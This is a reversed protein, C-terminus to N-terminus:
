TSDSAKLKDQHSPFITLILFSVALALGFLLLSGTLTNLAELDMILAIALFFIVTGGILKLAQERKQHSKTKSLAFIISFFAIFEDFLYILLYILLMLLFVLLNVQYRAMINTWILPLSFTLPFELITLGLAVVATGIILTGIGNTPSMIKQIRQRIRSQRKPTVLTAGDKHRFYDCINILAFILAVLGVVVQILYQYSFHSFVSLFGVTMLGYTLGVIALYTLGVIVARSRSGATMVIGLLFVLGWLSYPNLGDLFGIVVTTVLMSASEPDFEGLLPLHTPTEASVLGAGLLSLALVIIGLSVLRNMINQNYRM